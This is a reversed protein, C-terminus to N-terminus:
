RFGPLLRYTQTKGDTQYIMLGQAAAPLPNMATRQAETMRPFLAGKTTSSVDLAASANATTIGIGVQANTVISISLLVLLLLPNRM